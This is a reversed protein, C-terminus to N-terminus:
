SLVELHCARSAAISGLLSAYPPAAALCDRVASTQADREAAHIAARAAGPDEPVSAGTVPLDPSESSTPPRAAEGMATRLAEVHARHDDLLPSLLDSLTPQAAITATYTNILALTGTMVPALPSPGATGKSRDGGLWGCGAAGALVAGGAMAALVARRSRGGRILERGDRTM